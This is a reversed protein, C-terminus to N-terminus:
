KGAQRSENLKVALKRQLATLVIETAADISLEATNITMDHNLPDRLDHGFHRRVLEARERDSTEVAARAAELSLKGASAVRKVRVEVPAVM